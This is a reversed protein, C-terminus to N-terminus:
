DSLGLEARVNGRRVKEVAEIWRQWAAPDASLEDELLSMGGLLGGLYDAKTEAYLGELYAYMALYAERISLKPEPM